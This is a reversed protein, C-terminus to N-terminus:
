APDNESNRTHLHPGITKTAPPAESQAPLDPMKPQPSRGAERLPTLTEPVNELAIDLRAESLAAERTIRTVMESHTGLVEEMAGSIESLAKGVERTHRARRAMRKLRMLERLHAKEQEKLREREEAPM